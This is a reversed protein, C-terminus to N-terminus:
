EAATTLAALVEPRAPRATGCRERVAAAFAQILTHQHNRDSSLEPQYLTGIFFPHGRLEVARPADAEDWAVIRLDCHTFLGSLQPNLGYSCHYLETSRLLGYIEALKSGAALQLPRREGRMACALPTILLVNADPASQVDDAQMLGLINRAWEILAHQFGGCTGLYPVGAERAYRITALVNAMSRYPSGPVVWIGDADALDAPAALTATSHWRHGVNLGELAEIIRGHAAEGTERDGVLAVLPVNLTSM